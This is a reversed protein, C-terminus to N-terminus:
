RFLIFLQNFRRLELENLRKFFRSTNHGALCVNGDLISSHEFLGIGEALVEQTTGELVIDKFEIKPIELVALANIPEVIEQTGNEQQKTIYDNFIEQSNDNNYINYIYEINDQVEKKQIEQKILFVTMGVSLAVILAILVGKLITNIKSKL